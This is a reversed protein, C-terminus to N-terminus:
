VPVETEVDIEKLRGSFFRQIDANAAMSRLMLSIWMGTLM